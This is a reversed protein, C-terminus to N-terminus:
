KKKNSSDTFEVTEVTSFVNMSSCYDQVCKMAGNGFFQNGMENVFFKLIRNFDSISVHCDSFLDVLKKNSVPDPAKQQKKKQM